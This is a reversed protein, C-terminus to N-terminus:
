KIFVKKGGRIYIGRRPQAVRRGSLDYVVAGADDCLAPGAIATTGGFGIRMTPALNAAAGGLELYAKGAAFTNDASDLLRFVANGESDLTFVYASSPSYTPAGGEPLGFLYNQGGATGAFAQQSADEAELETEVLTVSTLEDSALIVGAGGAVVRGAITKMTVEDGGAAAVYYAEVGGSVVVNAAGSYTAVHGLNSTSALSLTTGVPYIRVHSNAFDSSNANGYLVLGGNDYGGVNIWKRTASADATSMIWISEDDVQSQGEGPHMVKFYGPESTLHRPDGGAPNVGNDRADIYMGDASRFGYAFTGDAEERVEVTFIASPAVQAAVAPVDMVGADTGVRDGPQASNCSHSKAYVLGKNGSNQMILAYKGGNVLQELSTIAPAFRHADEYVAYVFFVSWNGTGSRFKAGNGNIYMKTGGETSAICLRVGDTPNVGEALNEISTETVTLAKFALAEDLSTTWQIDTEAVGTGTIYAGTAVNRFVVGDDVKVVQFDATASLEDYAGQLTSYTDGANAVCSLYNQHTTTRTRLAVTMGGQNIQEATLLGDTFNRGVAEPACLACLALLLSYLTIKRM